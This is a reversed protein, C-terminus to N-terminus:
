WLRLRREGPLLRAESDTNVSDLPHNFRDKVRVVILVCGDALLAQVALMLQIFTKFVSAIVSNRFNM